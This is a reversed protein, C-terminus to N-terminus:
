YTYYMTRQEMRKSLLPRIADEDGGIVRRRHAGFFVRM